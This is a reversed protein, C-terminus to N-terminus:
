SVPTNLKLNSTKCVSEYLRIGESLINDSANEDRDKVLGCKECVYVRDSLLLTEKVHGCCSCTKSSPYFRPVEQIITGYKTAIYKLKGIFKSHALDSIKKGWMRKMGEINLDEIAIFSYNSCLEHALKWQFDDRKNEIEKHIRAM